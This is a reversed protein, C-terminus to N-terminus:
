NNGGGDSMCFVHVEKPGHVGITLTMEIDATRSPGSILSIAASDSIEELNLVQDMSSYIDRSYLVVIHVEPLLSAAQLREPGSHLALTGTDAVAAFAGTLGAKLTPDADLVVKIGNESLYEILGFPLQEKHWCMISSIDKEGLLSFM